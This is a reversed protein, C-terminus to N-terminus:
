LIRRAKLANKILFYFRRPTVRIAGIEKDGKQSPHGYISQFYERTVLYYISDIATNM